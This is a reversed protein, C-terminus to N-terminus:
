RIDGIQIRYDGQSRFKSTSWRHYWAFAAFIAVDRPDGKHSHEALHQATSQQTTSKRWTGKWQHKREALRMKHFVALFFRIMLWLQVLYEIM